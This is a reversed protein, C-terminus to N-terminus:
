VYAVTECIKAEFIAELESPCACPIGFQIRIEQYEASQGVHILKQVLRLLKQFSILMKRAEAFVM